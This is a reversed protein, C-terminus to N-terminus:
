GRSNRPAWCAARAPPCCWISVVDARALLEEKTVLKAGAARAREETLNQSWALVTMGLAAGYGAMMTGLRGLGLLGLTKGALAFGQPVHEQFRGARIEADGLPIRRVAALMLGLALEATAASNAPPAAPGAETHCVVVGRAQLAAIDIVAARVGTIGLMRLRPLRAVLAAPVAMRERMTLVIDFDTLKEAAEEANTFPRQFFVVEARARLPLWDALAEARGQWDDLVAVKSM